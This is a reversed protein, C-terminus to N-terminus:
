LIDHVFESLQTLNRCEVMPVLDAYRSAVSDGTDWNRRVEPNLWWQKKTGEVISKLAELQLDAYNSRDIRATRARDFQETFSARFREAEDRQRALEEGPMLMVFFQGHEMLIDTWFLTDALSYSVPDKAGGEPVFVPKRLKEVAQVRAAEAM